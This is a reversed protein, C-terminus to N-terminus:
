SQRTGFWVVLLMGGIFVLTWAILYGIWRRYQAQLARTTADFGRQRGLLATEHKWQARVVESTAFTRDVPRAARIPERIRDYIVAYSLKLNDIIRKRLVLTRWYLLTWVIAVWGFFYAQRHGM